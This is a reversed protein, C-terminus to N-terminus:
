LFGAETKNGPRGRHFKRLSFAREKDMVVCKAHLSAREAPDALLSRPDYFLEPLRQDPWHNTRFAEVFDRLTQQLRAAM